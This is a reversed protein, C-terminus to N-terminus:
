KLLTKKLRRLTELPHVGFQRSLNLLGMLVDEGAFSALGIIFGKFPESYATQALALATMSGVFGALFLGQLFQKFSRREGSAISRALGAGLAITLPLLLKKIWEESM